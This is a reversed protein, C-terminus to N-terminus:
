PNQLPRALASWAEVTSQFLAWVLIALLLLMWAVSTLSLAGLGSLGPFADPLREPSDVRLAGAGLRLRTVEERLELCLRESTDLRSCVRDYDGVLERLRNNERNASELAARTRETERVLDLLAAIQTQASGLWRRADEPLEGFEVGAM